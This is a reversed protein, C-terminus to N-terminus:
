KLRSIQANIPLGCMKHSYAFGSKQQAKDKFIGQKDRVICVKWSLLFMVDSPSNAFFPFM